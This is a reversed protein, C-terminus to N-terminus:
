RHNQLWDSVSQDHQANLINISEAWARRAIGVGFRRFDLHEANHADTTIALTCGLEIARRAHVDHLDLREPNANIELAVNEAAAIELVAEVDLDAPDRRGILRGTLHGVMDVHPNRIARILRDTIVDRPQRLSTHLSVIVIDLKELVDDPYDLEGDALIEVEAGQLITFKEGLKEQLKAIERKQQQLDEISLGGAVGLSRSHDTIALYTCGRAMAADVMEAISLAGDSWTTHAHLEGQLDTLEVLNPLEGVLAAAIEGRDERLEPPVWQMGLTQYVDEETPCPRTSGDPEAFGHDSLSFGQKLATERLRVNHAQSGTAYQLASGFEEPPYAWVQVRLADVM